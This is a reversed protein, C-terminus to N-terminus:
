LGPNTYGLALPTTGLLRKSQKARNVTEADAARYLAGARRQLETDHTSGTDTTEAESLGSVATAQGKPRM